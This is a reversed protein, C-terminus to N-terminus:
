APRPGTRRGAAEIVHRSHQWLRELGGVTFETLLDVLADRDWDRDTAQRVAVAEVMRFFMVAMIEGAGGIDLGLSEWRSRTVDTLQKIVRRRTEEGVSRPHDLGSREARMLMTVADRDHEFLDFVAALNHRVFPQLPLDIAAHFSTTLKDVVLEAADTVVVVFLEDKGGFLEYITQRPVGAERAVREITGGRYGDEAFVRRAAALV